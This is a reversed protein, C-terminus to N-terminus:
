EPRWADPPPVPPDAIVIIVTPYTAHKVDGYKLLHWGPLRTPALLAWVAGKDPYAKGTRKEYQEPTEHDPIPVLFSDCVLCQADRSTIVDPGFEYKSQCDKCYYKM